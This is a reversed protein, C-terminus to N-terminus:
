PLLSSEIKVSHVKRIHLLMGLAGAYPTYIDRM